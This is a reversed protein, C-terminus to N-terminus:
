IPPTESCAYVWMTVAQASPFGTFEHSNAIMCYGATQMGSLVSLQSAYACEAKALPETPPLRRAIRKGIHALTLRCEKELMPGIVIVAGVSGTQTAFVEYIIATPPTEPRAAPAPLAISWPVDARAATVGLLAVVVTLM